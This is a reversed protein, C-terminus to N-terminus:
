SYRSRMLEELSKGEARLHAKLARSIGSGYQMAKKPRLAMMEPVGLHVSAERLAVKNAGRCLKRGIPLGSAFRAVDSELFPALLVKGHSEAMARYAPMELGVLNALDESMRGAPDPDRSYKAYGGFLEDAGAGTLLAEERIGHFALDHAIFTSMWRPERVGHRSVVEGVLGPVDKEDLTLEVLELDLLAACARAWTMDHCGELGVVYARLDV